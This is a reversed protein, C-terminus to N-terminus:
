NLAVVTTTRYGTQRLRYALRQARARSSFNGLHLARGELEASYGRRALRNRTARAKDSTAYPGLRVTYRAGEEVRTAPAEPAGAAQPAPEPDPELSEEVEAGEVEAGEAEAREAKGFRPTPLMGAMMVKPKESLADFGYELLRRADGWMDTAGLLAIVVEHGDDEAAGVFCRRAARTYGTKGIVRHTYGTLLRNHSRLSVTRVAGAGYVPMRITRTSLVQRFLPLRLGHRFIIALDHASAVHGPATLGHPNVFHSERAGLTRARRNMMAAFGKQSGGLGEAVVVAADNASNLLIAYLLGELEMTTGPRLNIKSPATQAAFASVPMREDLRESEIALIATLVKTTSAPPLPEHSNREWLVHGNEADVVIAARATVSPPKASAVVPQVCAALLAAGLAWGSRMDWGGRVEQM